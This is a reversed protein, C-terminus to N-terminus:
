ETDLQMTFADDTTIPSSDGKSDSVATTFTDKISAIFKSIVELSDSLSSDWGDLLGSASQLWRFPIAGMEGPIVLPNPVTLLLEPALKLGLLFSETEAVDLSRGTLDITVVMVGNLYYFYLSAAVEREINVDLRIHRKTYKRSRNDGGAHSSFRSHSHVHDPGPSDRSSDARDDDLLDEMEEGAELEEYFTVRCGVNGECFAIIAQLLKEISEQEINRNNTSIEDVSMANAKLLDAFLRSHTNNFPEASKIISDLQDRLKEMEKRKLVLRSKALDLSEQKSKLEDAMRKREELERQLSRLMREHENLEGDDNNDNDLPITLYLSEHTRTDKINQEYHRKEYLLNQRALETRDVANKAGQVQKKVDRLSLSFNRNCERIRLIIMEKEKQSITGYLSGKLENIADRYKCLLSSSSAQEDEQRMVQSSWDSSPLESQRSLGRSGEM